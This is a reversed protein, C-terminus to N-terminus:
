RGTLQRGRPFLYEGWCNARAVWATDGASNCLLTGCFVAILNKNNSVAPELSPSDSSQLRKRHATTYNQLHTVVNPIFRDNKLTGRFRRFRDDETLHFCMETFRRRKVLSCPTVNSSVTTKKYNRTNRHWNLSRGQLRIGTYSGRIAFRRTQLSNLWRLYQSLADEAKSQHQLETV